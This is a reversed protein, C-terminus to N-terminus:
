PRALLCAPVADSLFDARVNVAAARLSADLVRIRRLIGGSLSGTQYLPPSLTGSGRRSPDGYPQFTRPAAPPSPNHLGSPSPYPHPALMGHDYAPISAPAFGYSHPPFPPGQSLTFQPAFGAHQASFQPQAPSPFPAQPSINANINTRLAEQSPPLNSFSQWGAQIPAPPPRTRRPPAEPPPGGPPRAM